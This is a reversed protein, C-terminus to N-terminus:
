KHPTSKPLQWALNDQLCPPDRRCVESSFACDHNELHSKTQDAPLCPSHRLVAVPPCCAIVLHPSSKGPKDATSLNGAAHSPDSRGSEMEAKVPAELLARSRCASTRRSRRCRAIMVAAATGGHKAQGLSAARTTLPSKAGATHWFLCGCESTWVRKRCRSTGGMESSDWSGRGTRSDSASFSGPLRHPLASWRQPAPCGRGAGLHSCYRRFAPREYLRSDV